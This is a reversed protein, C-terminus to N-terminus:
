HDKLLLDRNITHRRAQYWACLEAISKDLPTLELGPFTKQLRANDGSYELGMGPEKILIPADRGSVQAVMQGLTKM